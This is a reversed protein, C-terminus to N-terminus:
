SGQGSDAPGKKAGKKPDKKEGEPREDGAEGPDEKDPPEVGMLRAEIEDPNAGTWAASVAASLKITEREPDEADDDIADFLDDISEVVPLERRHFKRTAAFLLGTMLRSGFKNSNLREDIESREMDLLDEMERVGGNSFKLTFRRTDLQEDDEFLVLSVEGRARNALLNGKM